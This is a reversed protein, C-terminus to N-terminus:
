GLTKDPSITHPKEIIISESRKVKEVEIAQDTESMFRHIVGLGGLHAFAKAMESETVTDMNASVLPINLDINRSFRTKTVADKRSYVSSSKPVLLVDDFTLFEKSNKINYGAFYDAM